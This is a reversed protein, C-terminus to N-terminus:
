FRRMHKTIHYLHKDVIMTALHGVEISTDVYIKRGTDRVKSCFNIDEGVAKGERGVSFFFWPYEIEDFIEMNILMCGTGTADVEIIEGSFAEEDEVNKYKGIEGRYFIRDFPAWRRHVAVGCVDLGNGLLKTFTDEPYLQDTDCMLLWKVGAAQAQEVIANRADAISGLWPGHPHEPKLILYEKPKEMCEFTLFFPAPVTESVLPMGIAYKGLRERKRRIYTKWDAVLVNQHLEDGRGNEPHDHDIVVEDTIAWRGQEKAIDMLENDCYNHRYDTSFFQGGTFELMRKDALWHACDVSGETKLGVVGWGDPLTAMKDIGAQLWGQRPITDDGLFCFVDAEEQNVLLGVMKPCGIRDKDVMANIQIEQDNTHLYYRWGFTVKEDIGHQRLIEGICRQAKEPRIVPIIISVRNM